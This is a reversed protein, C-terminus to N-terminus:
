AKGMGQLEVEADAEVSAYAYGRDTLAKKVAGKSSNFKAEDFRAGRALTTRAAVVAARNVDPPLGEIGVVTVNRNVTAPGEDVVIDVVVHKRTVQRVAAVRAHADLFGKARYARELRAMDRQLVAEDYVSYEYAVGQFLFLFKASAQTALKGELEGASVSRANHITVSDVASRGPPIKSCALSLCLLLLGIGRGSRAVISALPEQRPRGQEHKLRARPGSM